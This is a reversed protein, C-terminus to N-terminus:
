ANKEGIELRLKFVKAKEKYKLTGGMLLTNETAMMIVKVMAIM